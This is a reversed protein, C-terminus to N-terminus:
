IAPAMPFRTTTSTCQTTDTGGYQPESANIPVPISSNRLQKAPAPLSANQLIPESWNMPLPPVPISMIISFLSFLSLLLLGSLSVHM